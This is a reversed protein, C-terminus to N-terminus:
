NKDRRHNEFMEIAAKLMGMMGIALVISGFSVEQISENDSFFSGFLGFSLISLIFFCLMLIFFKGKQPDEWIQKSIENQTTTTDQLTSFSVSLGMFILVSNITNFFVDTNQFAQEIGDLFPTIAFYVAVIMLPYQLYSILHFFKKFSM